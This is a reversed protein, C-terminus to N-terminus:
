PQETIDEIWNKGDPAYTKFHDYLSQRETPTLQSLYSWYQYALDGITLVRVEDDSMAFFEQVVIRRDDVISLSDPKLTNLILAVTATDTINVNDTYAAASPMVVSVDEQLSFTENFERAMSKIFELTDTIIVDDTFGKGYDMIYVDTVAVNDTVTIGKSLQITFEDTIGMSDQPGRPYQFGMTDTINVVDNKTHSQQKHGVDSIAVPDTATFSMHHARTVSDTIGVTDSHARGIGRAVTASDTLGVSDTQTVEHATGTSGAKVEAAVIGARAAGTFTVSPSTDEGVKYAAIVHAYSFWAEGLETYGSEPTCSDVNVNSQWGGAIMVANNTADAFASLTASPTATSTNATTTAVQVIPASSDVGAAESVIWASRYVAIGYTVTITGSSPTGVGKWLFTTSRDGGSNDIDVSGVATWTLGCGSISTITPQGTSNEFTNIAIFVVSESPSVSATSFSTSDHQSGGETLATIVIAM